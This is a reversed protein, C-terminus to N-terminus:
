CWLVCHIDLYLKELDVEYCALCSLELAHLNWSSQELEGKDTEMM